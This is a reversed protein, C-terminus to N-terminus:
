RNEPGPPRPALIEILLYALALLMLLGMAVVSELHLRGFSKVLAGQGMGGPANMSGVVARIHPGLLFANYGAVLVSLVLPGLMAARRGIRGAERFVLALALAPCVLSAAYYFPFIRGMIRGGAEQGVVSFVSIAVNGALLTMVGLWFAVIALALLRTRTM